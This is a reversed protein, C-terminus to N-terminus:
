EITLRPDALLRHAALVVLRDSSVGQVYESYRGAAGAVPPQLEGRPLRRMGQITDALIAFVMTDNTLVVLKNLDSLGSDPLDFFKRIDVVAVIRGRLNAIGRLFPPVGPLPSLAKLPYVERVHASAIGYHEGAVTFVVLELAEEAPRVGVRQQALARARARLIEREEDMGTM